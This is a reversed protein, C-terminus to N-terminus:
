SGVGPKRLHGYTSLYAFVGNTSSKFIVAEGSGCNTSSVLAPVTPNGLDLIELGFTEDAVYARGSAIKIGASSSNTPSYFGRIM